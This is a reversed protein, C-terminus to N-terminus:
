FRMVDPIITVNITCKFNCRKAYLDAREFTSYLVYSVFIATDRTGIFERLNYHADPWKPRRRDVATETVVLRPLRYRRDEEHSWGARQLEALTVCWIHSHPANRHCRSVSTGTVTFRHQLRWRVTRDAGYLERDNLAEGIFRRPKRTQWCM